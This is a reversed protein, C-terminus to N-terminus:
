TNLALQYVEADNNKLLSEREQAGVFAHRFGQKILMLTEWLTIGGTTMRAATLFEEGLTTDTFGPNDTCLSLALGADMFERLPYPALTATAPFAPDQFGVVERNSTPCLEVCIGRNRFKTLLAPQQALTLGHGIRDAHLHYAATWISTAPEGEGAHITLALCNQFAAAFGPALEAPNQTGEDGALDFGVFFDALRAQAAVATKVTAALSERDRRDLIWIFAVRPAGSEIPTTAAGAQRLATRLEDLFAAPDTPRYKQPSGRLELYTLGEHRAQAVAQAAYSAIAAPHGLLASGALEGPREYAKFGYPSRTKLAVRTQPDGLLNRRLVATPTELLLLAACAARHAARPAAQLAANILQAPWEWPWEAALLLPGVSARAAAQAAPALECWLAAAVRRQAALSLCGGLHRHLDAKPLRTLWGLHAPTLRTKRLQEIVGLPLRYLMRWNEHHEAKNVRDMYNGLLQSSEHERRLLELHLDPSQGPLPWARASDALPLPFAATTICRGDLELDLLESRAGLAVVLPTIAAAASAPLPHAFAAPDQISKLTQENVVVHLMAHAGLLQGARQLDASMTKRGGALSLLLQGAPGCREAALLVARLILERLHECQAQTALDDVGAATWVRLPLGTPLSQWWDQLLSLQEGTREGDTTIVWLEHPPQLTHQACLDRLAARRPHEAYLDLVDPALLGFVEPIVPWSGGLTCVLINM